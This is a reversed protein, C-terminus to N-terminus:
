ASGPLRHRGAVLLDYTARQAPSPDPPLSVLIARGGKADPLHLVLSDLSADSAFPRSRGTEDIVVTRGSATVEAILLGYERWARLPELEGNAISPVLVDQFHSVAKEYAGPNAQKLVRLAKRYYDRPDRAGSRELAEAFIRDAEKRVAEDM